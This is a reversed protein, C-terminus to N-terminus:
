RRFEILGIFLNILKTTCKQCFDERVIELNDYEVLSQKVANEIREIEEFVSYKPGETAGRGFVLFLEISKM